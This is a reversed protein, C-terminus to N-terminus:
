RDRLLPELSAWVTAAIVAHGAANPHMGDSQNLAPDAAVDELLFPILTAGTEEAVEPYVAGFADAYTRGMNPPALMGALVVTLGPDHDRARRVIARLNDAVRSPPVGRLADNGGLAVVLVVPDGELVRGVRRLGGATTEGSVGANVVRFALGAEDIRDQVLAPFSARPDVGLGATLSNGLFAVAPRDDAGPATDTAAETDQQGDPSAGTEDLGDSPPEVACAAVAFLALLATSRSPGPSSM